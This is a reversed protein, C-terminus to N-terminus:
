ETQAYIWGSYLYSVGWMASSFVIAVLVMMGNGFILFLFFGGLIISITTGILLKVLNPNERKTEM